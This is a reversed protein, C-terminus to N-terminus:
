QFGGPPSPISILTASCTLSAMKMVSAFKVTINTPSAFYGTNLLAVAVDAGELMKGFVMSNGSNQLRCLM